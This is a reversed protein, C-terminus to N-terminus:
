MSDKIKDFALAPFHSFEARVKEARSIDRKDPEIGEGAAHQIHGPQCEIFLRDVDTRNSEPLMEFDVALRILSLMNM